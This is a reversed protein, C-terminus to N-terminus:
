KSEEKQGAAALKKDFYYLLGTQVIQGSLSATWVGYIGTHFVLILVTVLLLNVGAYSIVSAKMNEKMAGVGQLFGSYVFKATQFVAIIGIWVCSIAGIRLFEPDSGFLRFFPKGFLVILAGLVLASVAGSVLLARRYRRMGEPDKAGYSKGVLAVAASQLGTGLSMNVNMLHVGVTYVALQFAGIRAVVAGILLMSARMILSDLACSKTLDTIERFHEKRTQKGAQFSLPVNIFQKGSMVFGLSVAAAAAWGIVTALAAGRIGMAPFGLNGEILLYNFLINVGCSIINSLFTLKTLGCGRLAANVAMYLTNFLLGAMVIRFYVISDELIEIRGAFATMVPRAFIFSLASLLVSLALVTRLVISFVANAADRDRSGRYKACLSATVTNIAFFVTLLFLRPQNTVSVASIAGLGLVSVMRSDIISVFTTLLTELFSPVGISIIERYATRDTRVEM